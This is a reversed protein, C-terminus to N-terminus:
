NFPNILLLPCSKLYHRHAYPNREQIDPLSIVSFKQAIRIFWHGIFEYVLLCDGRNLESLPYAVVLLQNM